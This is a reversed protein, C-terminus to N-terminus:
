PGDERELYRDHETALDPPITGKHMGVLQLLPDSAEGGAEERELRAVYADVAERILFAESVGKQFAWKKLLEDSGRDLYVQKRKLTM